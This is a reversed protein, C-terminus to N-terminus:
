AVYTLKRRLFSMVPKEFYLHILVGFVSTLALLVIILPVIVATGLERHGVVM